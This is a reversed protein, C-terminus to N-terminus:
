ACLKLATITKVNMSGALHVISSDSSIIYDCNAIVGSTIKFDLTKDFMGQGPVFEIDDLVERQRKHEGKQLSIFQCNQLEALYKMSRIDISRGKSYMRREFDPNGQWHIGILKKISRKTTTKAM